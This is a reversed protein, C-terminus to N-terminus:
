KPHLFPESLASGPIMRTSIFEFRRKLKLFPTEFYRFSLAAILITLALSIMLTEPVRLVEHESGPIKKILYRGVFTFCLLHFVYLGYSIQGLYTIQKPLCRGPLHFVALFISLCGVDVLLYCVPYAFSPPKLGLESRAAIWLGLGLLMLASRQFKSPLWQRKHLVLALLGGTAFFIFHGLPNYWNRTVAILALALPVLSLSVLCITRRGINALVPWILYFLEEVSISWLPGMPNSHYFGGLYGVLFVLYFIQHHSMGFERPMFFGVAIGITVGLYYLPWIRLLRRVYFAKLHVSGTKEVERLLLETILFSSLFFFLCLGFIGAEAVQSYYEGIRHEWSPAKPGLAFRPGHVLFVFFFAFFRLADLEPRYFESRTKVPEPVPAGAQTEVTLASM